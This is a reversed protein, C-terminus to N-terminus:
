NASPLACEPDGALRYIGQYPQEALIAGDEQYYHLTTVGGQNELYVTGYPNVAPFDQVSERGTAKGTALVELVAQITEGDTYTLERGDLTEVRLSTVDGAAPLSIAKGAAQCGALLAILFALLLLTRKKM